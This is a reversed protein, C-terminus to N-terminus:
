GAVIAQDYFGYNASGTTQTVPRTGEGYSLFMASMYDNTSGGSVALSVYRFDNNIDLRDVDVEIVGWEQPNDTADFVLTADTVNKIAAESVSTAQKVQLTVDHALAGAQVLFSFRAMGSVDIMSGSAPLHITGNVATEPNKLGKIFLDQGLNFGMHM